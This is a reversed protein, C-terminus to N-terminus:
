RFRKDREIEAQTKRMYLLELSGDSSWEKHRYKANGRKALQLASPYCEQWEWSATRGKELKPRLQAANPTVLLPFEKLYEYAEDLPCVQPKGILNTEGKDRGGGQWYVGGIKADIVVAFKGERCPVYGELTCVGVLPIEATFALTKAAMAGVRIGTYSGPGVAVAILQLDSMKLACSNLGKQLESFLFQSNQLGFPLQTEFVIKGESVVAVLGRETSTDIVLTAM